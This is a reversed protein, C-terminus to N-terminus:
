PAAAAQNLYVEITTNRRVVFPDPGLDIPSPGPVVFKAEAGGDPLVDTQGGSFAASAVLVGGAGGMGTDAAGGRAIISVKANNGGNNNDEEKCGASLSGMILLGALAMIWSTGKLFKTM